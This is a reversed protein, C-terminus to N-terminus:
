TTAREAAASDLRRQGKEEMAADQERKALVRGALWQMGVPAVAVMVGILTTMACFIAAYGFKQDDANILV